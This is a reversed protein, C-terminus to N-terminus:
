PRLLNVVTRYPELLPLRPHNDIKRNRRGQLLDHCRCRIDADASERNRLLAFRKRRCAKAVPKAAAAIFGAQEM